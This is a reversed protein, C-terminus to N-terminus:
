VRVTEITKSSKEYTYFITLVNEYGSPRLNSDERRLWSINLTKLNKKFSKKQMQAYNLRLQHLEEFSLYDSDIKTEKKIEQYEEENIYFTEKLIEKEM